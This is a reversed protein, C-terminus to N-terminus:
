SSYLASEVPRQLVEVLSTAIPMPLRRDARHPRGGNRDGPRGDTAARLSRRNNQVNIEVPNLLAAAAILAPTVCGTPVLYNWSAPPIGGAINLGATFGSDPLYRKMASRLSIAQDGGNKAREPAM